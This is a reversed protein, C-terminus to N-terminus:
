LCLEVLDPTSAATVDGLPLPWSQLVDVETVIPGSLPFGLPPAPSHTGSCLLTSPPPSLENPYNIYSTPVLGM